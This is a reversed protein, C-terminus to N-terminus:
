KTFNKAFRFCFKGVGQPSNLVSFSTSFHFKSHFLDLPHVKSHFGVDSHISNSFMQKKNKKITLYLKAILKNLLTLLFKKEESHFTNKTNINDPFRPPFLSCFFM